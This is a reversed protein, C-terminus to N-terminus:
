GVRLDAAIARAVRRAARRIRLLEPPAGCAWLGPALRPGALALISEESRLAGAPLLEHWAPRYGTALLVADCPLRGGDALRAAAPELAVLAPKM